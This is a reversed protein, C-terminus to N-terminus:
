TTWEDPNFTLPIPEDIAIMFVLGTYGTLVQGALERSKLNGVDLYALKSALAAEDVIFRSHFQRLLERCNELAATQGALDGFETKELLYATFLRRKFWGGSRQLTAAETVDSLCVFARASRLLDLTEELMGFGTCTCFEARMNRALKNKETLESLYKKFDFM